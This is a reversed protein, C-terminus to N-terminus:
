GSAPTKSDPVWKGNSVIYGAERMTQRERENFSWWADSGNPVTDLQRPYLSTRDVFRVRGPCDPAPCRPRRNALTFDEGKAEAIRRLDVPGGHGLVLCEWRITRGRELMQGVTDPM